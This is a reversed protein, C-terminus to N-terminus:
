RVVVVPAAVVLLDRGGSESGSVKVMELVGLEDVLQLCVRFADAGVQDSV